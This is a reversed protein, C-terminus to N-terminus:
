SGSCWLGANESPIQFGCWDQWALLESACSSVTRAPYIAHDSLHVGMTRDIAPDSPQVGMTRDIAHDSPQVGVTWPM